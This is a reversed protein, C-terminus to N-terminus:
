FSIIHFLNKLFVMKNQVGLYLEILRISYLNIIIFISCIDVNSNKFIVTYLIIKNKELSIVEDQTIKKKKKQLPEDQTLEAVDWQKAIIITTICTFDVLYNISFDISNILLSM